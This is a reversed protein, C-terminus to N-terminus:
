AKNMDKRIGSKLQWRVRDFVTYDTIRQSVHWDIINHSIQIGVLKNDDFLFLHNKGYLMASEQPTIQIYGTPQGYQEIFKEEAMGLSAGLIMHDPDIINEVGTDKRPKEKVLGRVDIAVTEYSVVAVMFFLHWKM